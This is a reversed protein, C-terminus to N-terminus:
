IGEIKTRLKSRNMTTVSKEFSELKMWNKELTQDKDRVNKKKSKKLIDLYTKNNLLERLNLQMQKVDETFKYLEQEWIHPKKAKNKNELSIRKPEPLRWKIEPPDLNTNINQFSNEITLASQELNIKLRDSKKLIQSSGIVADWINKVEEQLIGARKYL